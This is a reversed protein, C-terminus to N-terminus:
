TLIPSTAIEGGAGVIVWYDDGAVVDYVIGTFPSTQQTWGVKPDGSTTGIEKDQGIAVYVGEKYAIGSVYSGGFSDDTVDTWTGTPDSTYAIAYGGATVYLSGDYITNYVWGTFSNTRDVWTGTPDTATSIRSGEGVAIFYGNVYRVHFIDDAGFSSTQATWTSTPDSATALEGDSGAIVYYGNGYCASRVISTMPNTRQVWTGTPDTATAIKGTSGCAIWTSNCYDVGFINTVGFSSTRATWTGTPDTATSMKGAIGAVTYTTGDFDISRCNEGDFNSTQSTWTKPQANNLEVDGETNRVVWDKNAVSCVINVSGYKSNSEIFPGVGTPNSSDEKHIIQDAAQKIRWKGAGKGAVSILDGVSSTAPLTFVVEAANNAISGTDVTITKATGTYESWTIGYISAEINLTNAGTTFSISADASAITAFVPDAGTSGVLVQGNLGVTLPTITDTGSGILIGNDTLTSLGTGGAAVEIPDSSNIVNITAM